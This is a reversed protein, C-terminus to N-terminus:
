SKKYARTIILLAGNDIHATAYKSADPSCVISALPAGLRPKFDRRPGDSGASAGMTSHHWRVLVNEFGGSLLFAGELTYCLALVPLAHWHLTQLVLRRGVPQSQSQGTGFSSETAATDSTSLNHGGSGSSLRARKSSRPSAPTPADLEALLNWWLVIRGDSLGTAVCLETPHM